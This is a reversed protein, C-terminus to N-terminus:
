VDEELQQLAAEAAAMEASKISKGTGQGLAKSKLKVGATYLRKHDPGESGLLEYEPVAGQHNKQAWEQLRSKFNTHGSEIEIADLRAKFLQMVVTKAADMGGDLYIAGFLAELADELMSDSPEPHHKRQSQSVQIRSGLNLAKALSALSRGNVLSARARDLVGEDQGSLKNYLADAIVLDLVADGLFELRQNDGHESNCSPHTYALMELAPDSFSYGIKLNNDEM